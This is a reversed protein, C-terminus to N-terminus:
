NGGCINLILITCLRKHNIFFFFFAWVQELILHSCDTEALRYLTYKNVMEPKTLTKKPKQGLRTVNPFGRLSTYCCLFFMECELFYWLLFFFKVWGTTHTQTHSFSLALSRGHTWSLGIGQQKNSDTCVFFTKLEGKGKVNILGRCECSYGLNQLVDSTEETM